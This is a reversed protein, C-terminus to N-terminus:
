FVKYQLVFKSDKLVKYKIPRISYNDMLDARTEGNREREGEKITVMKIEKYQTMILVTFVIRSMKNPNGKLRTEECPGNSTSSQLLFLVLM